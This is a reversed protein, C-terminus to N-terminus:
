HARYVGCSIPSLRNLVIDFAEPTSAYLVKKCAITSAKGHSRCVNRRHSCRLLRAFAWPPSNVCRYHDRSPSRLCHCLSSRQDASSSGLTTWPVVMWSDTQHWKKSSQVRSDYKGQKKRPRLGSGPPEHPRRRRLLTITTTTYARRFPPM